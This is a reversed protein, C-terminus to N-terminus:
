NWSKLCSNLFPPVEFIGLFSCGNIRILRFAQQEDVYRSMTFQISPFLVVYNLRQSPYVLCFWRIDEILLEDLLQV